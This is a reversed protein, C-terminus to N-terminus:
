NNTQDKELTVDHKNHFLKSIEEPDNQNGEVDM